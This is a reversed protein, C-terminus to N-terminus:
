RRTVGALGFRGIGEIREEAKMQRALWHVSVRAPDAANFGAVYGLARAKADESAEPCCRQLFRDFSEDAGDDNMHQLIDDVDSHFDCARLRGNQVCWNDGDVETIPINGRQLTELIEPPRGHIFEAGLEIASQKPGSISHIRGGVRERAELVVVSMGREALESAATLGAVGAGVVIVQCRDQVEPHKKPETV